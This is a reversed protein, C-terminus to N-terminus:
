NDKKLVDQTRGNKDGRNEQLEYRCMRILKKKEKKSAPLLFLYRNKAERKVPTWGRVRAM